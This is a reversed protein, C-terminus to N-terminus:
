VLAAMITSVPPVSFKINGAAVKIYQNGNARFIQPQCKELVKVVDQLVFNCYSLFTQNSEQLSGLFDQKGVLKNIM